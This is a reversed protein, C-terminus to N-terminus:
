EGGSILIKQGPQLIAKPPLNNLKQVTEVPLGYSRSVQYLTEGQRIVHYKAKVSKEPTKKKEPPKVVEQSAPATDPSPVPSGSRSNQMSSDSRNALVDKELESIRQKMKEIERTREELLSLRESIKKIDANREGEQVSDPLSESGVTEEPPKDKPFLVFFFIILAVIGAGIVVLQM